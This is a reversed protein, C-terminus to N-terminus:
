DIHGLLAARGAGQAARLLATSTLPRLPSDAPAGGGRLHQAQMALVKRVAPADPDSATALAECLRELLEPPQASTVYSDITLLSAFASRGHADTVALQASGGGNPRLRVKTASALDARRTRFLSRQVLVTGELWSSARLMFVILWGILLSSAAPGAWKGPPPQTV